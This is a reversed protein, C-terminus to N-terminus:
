HDGHHEDGDPSPMRGGYVLLFREAPLVIDSTEVPREQAYHTRRITMMVSGPPQQLAQCEETTGIRASVKETWNDIVIGISLMREALGRGALLGDEPLVIPTGCTLCLPEYSTRLEVPVGDAKIVYETRVADEEDGHPEPMLLRRRVDDPAQLTHSSYEWSTEHRKPEAPVSFPTSRYWARMMQQPERHGRVYTGSGSRAEALGEHILAQAVRNAVGDSVNYRRKIEPRSPLRAGPPLEGSAIKERLETAIVQWLPRDQTM